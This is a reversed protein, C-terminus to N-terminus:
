QPPFRGGEDWVAVYPPLHWAPWDGVKGHSLGEKKLYAIVRDRGNNCWAEEEADSLDAM